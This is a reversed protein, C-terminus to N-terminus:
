AGTSDPKKDHEEMGILRLAARGTMAYFQPVPIWILTEEIFIPTLADNPNQSSFNEM